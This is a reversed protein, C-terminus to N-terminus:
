SFIWWLAPLKAEIRVPVTSAVMRTTVAASMM